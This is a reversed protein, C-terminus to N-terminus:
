DKLLDVVIAPYQDMFEKKRKGKLMSFIIKTFDTVTYEKLEKVVPHALRHLLAPSIQSRGALEIGNATAL